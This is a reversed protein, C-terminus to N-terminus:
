LEELLDALVAAAHERHRSFNQSGFLVRAVSDLLSEELRELREGFETSVRLKRVGRLRPPGSILSRLEDMAELEGLDV